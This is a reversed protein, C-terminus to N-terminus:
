QTLSDNYTNVLLTTHDKREIKFVLSAVESILGLQALILGSTQYSKQTAQSNQNVTYFPQMGTAVFIGALGLVLGGAGLAYQTNKRKQTEQVILKIEPNKQRGMQNFMETERIHRGMYYYGNRDKTLSLDPKVPPPPPAVMTIVQTPPPPTPVGYIEKVGDSYVIYRVDSKYTSYLPGDLLNFRKYRIDTTNVELVKVLLREGTMKVLTDQARVFLSSSLLFSFLVLLKKM